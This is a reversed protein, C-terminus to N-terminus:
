EVEQIFLHRFNLDGDTNTQSQSEESRSFHLSPLDENDNKFHDPPIQYYHPIRFPM